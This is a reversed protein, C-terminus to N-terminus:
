LPIDTRAQDPSFAVFKMLLGWNSELQMIHTNSQVLTGNGGCSAIEEGNLGQLEWRQRPEEATRIRTDDPWFTVSQLPCSHGIMQAIHVGEPVRWLRVTGDASGTALRAGDYSLALCTIGQDHGILTAVEAGTSGHWLRATRDVSGTALWPGTPSFASCVVSKTHGTCVAQLPSWQPIQGLILQPIDRHIKSYAAFIISDKPAFPLASYYVHNASISIVSYFEAALM